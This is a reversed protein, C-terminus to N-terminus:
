KSQSPTPPSGSKSMENLKQDFDTKNIEMWEKGCKEFHKYGLSGNDVVLTIELLEKDGHKYILCSLCFVWRKYYGNHRGQIGSINSLIPKTPEWLEKNGDKVQIAVHGPKPYFHRTTIGLLETEFISCENTSSTSALDLEFGSKRKATSVLSKMKADKDNCSVWKGDKLELYTEKPTGSLTTVVIVLEAKGDNNIYVKAHDLTQGSSLTYVNEEGDVLKKVTTDKNPVILRVANGDFTYDFSQCQSSNPSSIDLITTHRSHTLVRSDEVAVDEVKEDNRRRTLSPRHEVEHVTGNSLDWVQKKGTWTTSKHTETEEVFDSTWVEDERYDDLVEIVPIDTVFKSRKCHCLGLLCTTLLISFVKM